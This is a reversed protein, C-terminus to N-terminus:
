ELFCVPRSGVTSSIISSIRARTHSKICAAPSEARNTPKYGTITQWKTTGVGMGNVHRGRAGTIFQAEARRASSVPCWLHACKVLHAFRPCGGVLDRRPFGVGLASARRAAFATRSASRRM